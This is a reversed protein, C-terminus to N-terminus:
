EKKKAILNILGVWTLVSAVNVLIGIPNLAHGNFYGYGFITTIIGILFSGGYVALHKM